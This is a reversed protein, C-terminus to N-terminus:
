IAELMCIVSDEPLILILSSLLLCAGWRHV